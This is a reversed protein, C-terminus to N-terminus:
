YSKVRRALLAVIFALFTASWTSVHMILWLCLLNQLPTQPIHALMLVQAAMPVLAAVRYFVLWRHRDQNPISLGDMMSCVLCEGLMPPMLVGVVFLNIRASIKSTM